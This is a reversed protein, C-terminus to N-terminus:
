APLNTPATKTTRELERRVLVPQTTPDRARSRYPKPGRHQVALNNRHAVVPGFARHMREERLPMTPPRVFPHNPELGGKPLKCSSAQILAANLELLLVGSLRHLGCSSGTRGSRRVGYLQSSTQSRQSEADHGSTSPSGAPWTGVPQYHSNPGLGPCHNVPRLSPVEAEHRPLSRGPCHRGM